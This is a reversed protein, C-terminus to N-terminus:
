HVIPSAARKTHQVHIPSAISEVTLLTKRRACIVVHPELHAQRGLVFENLEDVTLPSDQKNHVSAMQLLVTLSDQMSSQFSVTDPSIPSTSHLYYVKEVRKM